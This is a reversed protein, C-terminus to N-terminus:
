LDEAQNPHLFMEWATKLRLKLSYLRIRLQYAPKKSSKNNCLSSIGLTMMQQVNVFLAKGTLCHATKSNQKRQRLSMRLSNQNQKEKLPFCLQKKEQTNGERNETPIGGTELM